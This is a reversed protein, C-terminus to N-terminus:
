SRALTRLAEITHRLAFREDYLQKDASAIRSRFCEDDVLRRMQDYLADHDCASATAVAGAEAWLPETLAGATTVVARQHSLAAMVSGRRTSVGDPFPQAILDCSSLAISM